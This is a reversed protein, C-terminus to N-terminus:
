DELRKIRSSAFVKIERWRAKDCSNRLFGIVDDVNLKDM